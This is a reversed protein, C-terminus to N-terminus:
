EASPKLLEMGAETLEEAKELCQMSLSYNHAGESNEVYCFDFYWQAERYIARVADLQEEGIKGEAIAAILANKFAELEAGVSKEKKTVRSQIGRVMEVMEEGTKIPPEMSAHCQLCTALLTEDELPSVLEHSHYISRDDPDQVVPMHCDACNLESAHKGYLYTEMEPHQVKLMKAETGPQVWDYFGVSGDPMVLANYYAYIAEPTMTEKADYPMTTAKTVPDFYYEIHCQGCALVAPDIAAANSGLADTVYTHMVTLNTQKSEANELDVAHWENPTNGHCTYCSVNEAGNETIQAHVALFNDAYAAGNTDAVLKTFDPTKCTLCNALSKEGTRATEMVDLLTYEHGRASKYDKSFGYNDYLAKLYPDEELYDEQKSAKETAKMSEAIHRYVDSTKAWADARIIGNEAAAPAEVSKLQEYDIDDRSLPASKYTIHHRSIIGALALIAIIVLVAGVIMKAAQNRKEM